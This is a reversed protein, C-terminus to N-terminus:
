GIITFTLYRERTFDAAGTPVHASRENARIHEVYEPTILLFYTKEGFKPRPCSPKRCYYFESNSEGFYEAFTSSMKTILRLM